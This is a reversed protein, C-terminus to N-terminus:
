LFVNRRERTIDHGALFSLQCLLSFSTCTIDRNLILTLSKYWSLGRPELSCGWRVLVQELSTDIHIATSVSKLVWQPSRIIKGPLCFQSYITLIKAYTMRGTVGSGPIAFDFHSKAFNLLRSYCKAEEDFYDPGPLSQPPVKRTAHRSNNARKTLWPGAFSRTIPYAFDLECWTWLTISRRAGFPKLCEASLATHYKTSM